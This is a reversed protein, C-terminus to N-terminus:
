APGGERLVAREEESLELDAAEMNARAEASTRAAAVVHAPFSSGLVWAVAIAELSTSRRAALEEARRRRGANAPTHYCRAAQAAEADAGEALAAADLTSTLYGGALVSWALVPFEQEALWARQAGAGDGAISVVGPWPPEAQEVLSHHPSTVVPPTAGSAEAAGVAARLREITWNSGGWADITGAAVQASAADVLEGVPVDPDDRHFLWLDLRDTGMRDLTTGVDTSVNGPRVRSASWDPPGPHCGKAIVTVEDRVGRGAIWAGLRGDSTGEGDAYVLGTDFADIGAELVGDLLAPVDDVLLDGFLPTAGQVVAPLPRRMGPIVRRRM